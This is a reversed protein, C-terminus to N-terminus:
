LLGVFEDISLGADHIIQRLTGVRVTTHDPVVVRTVPEDRRLVIHSGRQRRFVFGAKELARRVQQGSLDRPVKAM